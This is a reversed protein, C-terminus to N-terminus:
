WWWHAQRPEGPLAQVEGLRRRELVRRDAERRQWTEHVVTHATTRSQIATLVVISMCLAICVTKFHDNKCLKLNSWRDKTETMYQVVALKESYTLGRKKAVPKLGAEAKAEETLTEIEADSM